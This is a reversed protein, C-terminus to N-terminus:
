QWSALREMKAEHQMSQLDNMIQRTKREREADRERSEKIKERSLFHSDKKLERIAGKRETKVKHRLKQRDNASKSPAKRRRVDYVEDFSPEYFKISKPKKKLLQLVPRGVSSSLSVSQLVERVLEKVPGPLSGSAHQLNFAIGAFIETFSPLNRYLECLRLVVQLCSVAASATIIPDEEGNGGEGGGGEERTALHLADSLSPLPLTSPWRDVGALVTSRLKDSASFPPFLVPSTHSSFLGTCSSLFNVLEPVFRKSSSIFLSTFIDCVAVGLLLDRGTKVSSKLLTQGMIIMAPTTVPHKFDSSPFVVGVLWFLVVQV